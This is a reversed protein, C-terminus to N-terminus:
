SKETPTPVAAQGTRHPQRLRRGTADQALVPMAFLLAGALLFLTFSKM